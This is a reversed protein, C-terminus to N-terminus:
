ESYRRRNDFILNGSQGGRPGCGRGVKSRRGRTRIPYTAPGTNNMCSLTSGAAQATSLADHHGAVPRAEVVRGTVRILDRSASGLILYKQALGADVLYRFLPFLDPRRQVEDIVILGRLDELALQPQELRRTTRPWSSM